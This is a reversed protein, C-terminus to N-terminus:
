FLYSSATSLIISAWYGICSSSSFFYNPDNITFHLIYQISLGYVMYFPSYFTRCYTKKLITMRSSATTGRQHKGGLRVKLNGRPFLMLCTCSKFSVIWNYSALNFEHYSSPYSIGGKLDPGRWWNLDGLLKLSGLDKSEAAWFWPTHFTQVGGKKPCSGGIIAMGGKNELGGMKPLVELM